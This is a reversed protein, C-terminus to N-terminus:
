VSPCITTPRRARRRKCRGAVLGRQFTIPVWAATARRESPYVVTGSAPGLRAIEDFSPAPNLDGVLRWCIYAPLAVAVLWGISVEM